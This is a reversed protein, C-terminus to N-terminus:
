KKIYQNVTIPEQRSREADLFEAVEKLRALVEEETLEKIDEPGMQYDKTKDLSHSQIEPAVYTRKKKEPTPPTPRSSEKVKEQTLYSTATLAQLGATGVSLLNIIGAENLAPAAIGLITLGFLAWTKLKGTMTSSTEYGKLKKDTNILSIVGELGINLLLLPNAFAAAALLTTSFIKDTVADLDKGLESQLHFTRAIVGDAADTLAFGAAIGLTLPINGTAAVPLIVLPAFLRLATLINPIQKHRKGPTKLDNLAEDILKKYHNLVEQKEKKM